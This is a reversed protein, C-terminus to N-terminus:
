AATSSDVKRAGLLKIIVWINILTLVLTLFVRIGSLAEKMYNTAFSFFVANFVIAVIFVALARTLDAPPNEYLIYLLTALMLPFYYEPYGIQNLTLIIIYGIMFGTFSTLRLLYQAILAVGAAPILFFLVIRSAPISLHLFSQSLGGIIFIPSSRTAERELNLFLPKFILAGWKSYALLMGACFVAAAVAVLRVRLRRRDLALFPVLYLPYFKVLAGLGLAAGAIGKHDKRLAILALCVFFAIYVDNGGVVAVLAFTFINALLGVYLWFRTAPPRDKRERIANAVIWAIYLFLACGIVRPLTPFIVSTLGYVNFLPGYANPATIFFQGCVHFWSIHHVLQTDDRLWPDIGDWINRWQQVYPCYDGIVPVFLAVSLFIIAYVAFYRALNPEFVNLIKQM